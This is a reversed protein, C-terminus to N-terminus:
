KVAIEAPFAHATKEWRTSGTRRVTLYRLIARRAALMAIANSVIIRPSSRLGERWGYAHAVFGFRMVLRWILMALNIQLLVTLGPAVPQPAAGLLIQRLGLMTWALSAFYAAGLCIAALVSQRDRVRMWREAIGGHWGLRDWGSLAIGTMWRAKQRVAADLTGPFYERTVVPVRGTGALLRVFAASRGRERLRLGLEYDETVSAADFPAGGASRAVEELAERSFACGVGASPVAAGVAQRVVMEKAHAEAFEDAYHGAIWRSNEDLLPLVPLQVMDYREIASDFIRLEEPDVVDEADHLIVAKVRQGDAREDRVMANWIRNLCDAKTTPGPAEGVVLRVRPDRVEAAAAIGHEDNPYCGVYIRYNGHRLRQLSHALMRGIVESEDWAPVFIALLGPRRPPRLGDVRPAPRRILRSRAAMALWILDVLLDSAGLIIFGTAAFLAAENMALDLGAFFPELGTM